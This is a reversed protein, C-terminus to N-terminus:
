PRPPLEGPDDPLPPLPEGTREATPEDPRERLPEDAPLRREGPQEAFPDDRLPEDRIPEDRIPEDRISDVGRAGARGGAATRTADDWAAEGTAADATSPDGATPSTAASGAATPITGTAPAHRAPHEGELPSAVNAEPVMDPDRTGTTPGSALTNRADPGADRIPEDPGPLTDQPEAAERTRQILWVAAFIIATLVLVFLLMMM